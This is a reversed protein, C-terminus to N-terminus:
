AVVLRRTKLEMFREVIQENTVKAAIEKEVFLLTANDLYAQGMTTRLRTKILRLVSFIREATASSVPLTLVLTVLRFVLKYGATARGSDVLLISLAPLTKVERLEADKGIEVQFNELQQKLERLDDANFDDEYYNTALEVLKAVDFADFQKRPSICSALSLMEMTEGSFRLKIENMMKDVSAYFLDVRYIHDNTATSASSADRRPRGARVYIADMDPVPIDEKICFKEVIELLDDYGKDRLEQLREIAVVILRCANVIDQDKAQLAQSVAHTIGLLKEMMHLTFVFKFTFMGDLVRSAEARQDSTSGEQEVGDIVTVTAGFMDILRVLAMWFSSWRTDGPRVLTTAQNLGRGTALNLNEIMEDVLKKQEAVLLDNRKCSGSAVNIIDSVMAFFLAVDAVGDKCAAVLALQLCHAWCHIYYAHKEIERMRTQLGSISGSMTSAGDYSQGRCRNIPRNRNSQAKVITECLTSASTDTVHSICLYRERLIGTHKDVFRNVLAMQEKKSEDRTEDAMICYVVDAQEDDLMDRVIDAYAQIIDKQIDPSTMTANRPANEMAVRALEHDRKCLLKLLELFNGRNKSDPNENNGRCALGQNMIFRISDISGILRMRNAAVELEGQRILGYPGTMINADPNMLDVMRGAAHNHSSQANDGQHRRLACTTGGVKKFNQFGDRVFASPTNPPFLYCALCYVRNTTPSYELWPFTKFWSSQARVVKDM